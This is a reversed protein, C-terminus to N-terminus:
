KADYQFGWTGHRGRFLQPSHKHVRESGRVRVEMLQDVGEGLGWGRSGVGGWGMYGKCSEACYAAFCVLKSAKSIHFEFSENVLLFTSNGKWKILLLLLLDLNTLHLFFGFSTYFHLLKNSFPLDYKQTFQWGHFFVRSLTVSASAESFFPESAHCHFQELIHMSTKLPLVIDECSGCILGFDEMRNLKHSLLNLKSCIVFYCTGSRSHFM